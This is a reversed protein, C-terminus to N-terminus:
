VPDSAGEKINFLERGVLLLTNHAGVCWIRRMSSRQYLIKEIVYILFLSFM